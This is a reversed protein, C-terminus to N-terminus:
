ATHSHQLGYATWVRHAPPHAPLVRRLPWLMRPDTHAHPESLFSLPWRWITAALITLGAGISAPLPPTIRRREQVAAAALQSRPSCRELPQPCVKGAIGRILMGRLFSINHSSRADHSSRTHRTQDACRWDTQTGRPDHRKGGVGPKVLPCKTHQSAVICISNVM